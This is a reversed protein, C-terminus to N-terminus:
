GCLLDELIRAKALYDRPCRALQELAWSPSSPDSWTSECADQWGERAPRTSGTRCLVGRRSAHPTDSMGRDSFPRPLIATAEPRDCCNRIVGQESGQGPLEGAGQPDLRITQRLAAAGSEAWRVEDHCRGGRLDDDGQRDAQPEARPGQDGVEAGRSSPVSPCPSPWTRLPRTSGVHLPDGLSYSSLVGPALPGETLSRIEVLIPVLALRAEVSPGKL